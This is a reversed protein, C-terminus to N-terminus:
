DIAEWKDSKAMNEEPSLPRLNDLANIIAPDYIGERFFQAVPKIHDIHFSNRNEWSMEGTFQSEIHQRLEDKTYGVLLESPINKKKGTAKLIRSILRKLLARTAIRAAKEEPPLVSRAERCKRLHDPNERYRRQASERMKLKSEASFKFGCIPTRRKLAESIKIKTEDTRKLGRQNSKGKLKKSIMVTRPHCTINLIEFWKLITAKAVNYRRSLDTTSVEFNLYQTIAENFNEPINKAAPM